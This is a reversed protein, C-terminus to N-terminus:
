GQKQKMQENKTTIDNNIHDWVSKQGAEFAVRALTKFAGSSHYYMAIPEWFKDFTDRM